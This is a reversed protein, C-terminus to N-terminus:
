ISIASCRDGFLLRTLAPVDVNLLPTGLIEDDLLESTHPVAHEECHGGLSM